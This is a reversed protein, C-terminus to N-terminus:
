KNDWDEGGFSNQTVTDGTTNFSGTRPKIGGLTGGSEGGTGLLGGSVKDLEADPIEDRKAEDKDQPNKEDKKPQTM